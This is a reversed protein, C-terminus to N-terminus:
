DDRKDFLRILVEPMLDEFGIGKLDARMRSFTKKTLSEASYSDVIKNLKEESWIPITVPVGLVERLIESATGAKNKFDLEESFVRKQDDYRLVYVKSEEVSSVVLPSHTSVIFRAKPFANLFKPLIQRQLEPHLHNEVEDIIVTFNEENDYNYYLIEWAMNVISSMGGSSADLIFDGSDCELVLEYEVVKLSNFGLSGPLVIKLIEVFRDFKKECGDTSVIKSNGVGVAWSILTDKMSYSVSSGGPPDSLIASMNVRNAKSSATYSDEDVKSIHTLSKYKFFSRHSPIYRSKVEQKNSFSLEYQIENEPFEISIDTVKNNEYEITGIKGTGEKEYGGCVMKYDENVKYPTALFKASGSDSHKALMNLITTKGSGNAGTLITLRDHLSIEVKSFQQWGRVLQSDVGNNNRQQGVGISIKRFFTM